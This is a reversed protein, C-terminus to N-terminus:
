LLARVTPNKVIIFLQIHALLAILNCHVVQDSCDVSTKDWVKHPKVWHTKTFVWQILILWSSYARIHWRFISWDVKRYTVFFYQKPYKKTKTFHGTNKYQRSSKLSFLTCNSEVNCLCIIITNKPTRYIILTIAQSTKCNSEHEFFFTNM